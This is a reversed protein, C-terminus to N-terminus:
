RAWGRDELNRGVYHDMHTTGSKRVKEVAERSFPPIGETKLTTRTQNDAETTAPKAEALPTPLTELGEEVEPLDYHQSSTTLRALRRIREVDSEATPTRSESIEFAKTLGIAVPHSTHLVRVRTEKPRLGTYYGKAKKTHGLSHEMQHDEPERVTEREMKESKRHAHGSGIKGDDPWKKWYTWSCIMEKSNSNLTHWRPQEQSCDGKEVTSNM